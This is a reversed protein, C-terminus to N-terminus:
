LSFKKLDFYRKILFIGIGGLVSIGILFVVETGTDANDIAQQSSVITRTPTAYYSTVTTTDAVTETATGSDVPLPFPPTEQALAVAGISFTLAVFLVLALINKM